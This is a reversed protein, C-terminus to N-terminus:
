AIPLLRVRVRSDEIVVLAGRALDAAAVPLTAQLAVLISETSKLRRRLLVVSPKAAERQALITGFDTDQAVIVRDDRAAHDFVLTDDAAPNMIERIHVADYGAVRLAAALRPSLNNDILM